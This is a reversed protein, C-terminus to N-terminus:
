AQAGASIERESGMYAAIVQPDKAVEAYSGEALVSGRALVTIADSIGAVVKMNHEVMLITRGESVKKILQRIMPRMSSRASNQSPRLSSLVIQGMSRRRALLAVSVLVLGLVLFLITM